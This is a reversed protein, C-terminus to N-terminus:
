CDNILLGRMRLHQRVFRMQPGSVYPTLRKWRTLGGDGDPWGGTDKRPMLAFRFTTPVPREDGDCIGSFFRWITKPLKHVNRYDDMPRVDDDGEVSWIRGTSELLALSLPHLYGSQSGLEIHERTICVEVMKLRFMLWRTIPYRDTPVFDFYRTRSGTMQWLRQALSKFTLIVFGAIMRDLTDVYNANDRRM